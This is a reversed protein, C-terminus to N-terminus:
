LGQVTTEESTASGVSKNKIFRDLISKAQEPNKEAYEILKPIGDKLIAPNSLLPKSLWNPLHKILEPGLSSIIGGMDDINGEIKPGAQMSNIKSQKSRLKAELDHIYEGMQKLRKRTIDPDIEANKRYLKAIYVGLFSIPITVALIQLFPTFEM